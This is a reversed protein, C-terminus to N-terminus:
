CSSLFEGSFKAKFILCCDIGLKIEEEVAQDANNRRKQINKLTRVTDAKKKKGKIKQFM